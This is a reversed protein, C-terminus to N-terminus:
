ILWIWVWPTTRNSLTMLRKIYGLGLCLTLSDEQICGIAKSTTKVPTNSVASYSWWWSGGVKEASQRLGMLCMTGKDARCLPKESSSYVFHGKM